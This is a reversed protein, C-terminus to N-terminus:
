VGYFLREVVARARRTVRRYHDRLESGTTDLSRALHSLPVPASPLSDGPAGRVLYWRNRTHECFRYAEGLIAADARGMAGAEVLGKLAAMTGAARVGHRLQLLQATWEVDSLSGRGLKLHFQPDDGPPIREREVRAKMRRIERVQEDTLPAGWVFPEILDLFRRGLEADGAVPRARVLAQREWTRAWREYYVRFGDLSRALPGQRGEPRLDADLRYVRTAPTAGKVLRMLSGAAVEAAQFDAATSGDYLLLVDLDSAYSLEAGGLRGLAIVAMPVPPALTTLAAEVLGEALATLQAGTRRVDDFGLVDAAQIKLEGTQKLGHLGAHRETPEARWAVTTLASALVDAKTTTRRLREDNGVLGILEPRRELTAAVLRSTGLLLCIRRAAEPSERFTAVLRASRHRGAALTRLGLLGLDPDPSESLWGLLLPLLQQMLRSARTLGRTLDRLAQRTREADTFGFAALRAEAAEVSLPGPAAGASGDGRSAPSTFLELLPRFFLREHIARAAAQHLRVEQEFHALATGTRDDRHGM